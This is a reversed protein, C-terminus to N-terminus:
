VGEVGAEKMCAVLVDMFPGSPDREAMGDYAVQRFEEDSLGELGEGLCDRVSADSLPNEPDDADESDAFGALGQTLVSRLYDVGFEDIRWTDEVLVLTFTGTAGDTEGGVETVTATAKDGEVSIESVTVEDPFEGDSEDPQEAEICDEVSGYVAVVLRESVFESCKQEADESILADAIVGSVREGEPDDGGGCGVFIFVALVAVLLGAALRSWPSGLSKM